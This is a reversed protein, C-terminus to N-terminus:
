LYFRVLIGGLSHTYFNIKGEDPCADLGREIAIPALDEIRHDRSPYGINVVAYGHEAFAQAAKEMSATTRALGHLLIVCDTAIAPLAFACLSVLLTLKLHSPM